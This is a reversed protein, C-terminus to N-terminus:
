RRNVQLTATTSHTKGGGTATITITYTGWGGSSRTKVTLTSSSGSTSSPNFTYTAGSPGASASFSVPNSFGAQRTLSIASSSSGGRSITAPSFAGASISFDSTITATQGSTASASDPVGDNNYDNTGTVVVDITSGVDSAQVAYSSSTAGAINTCTGAACHQWQYSYTPTPYGAWSGPNATLTSGVTASGAITPPNTNAPPAPTPPAPSAYGAPTGNGTPGDYGVVGECLYSGCTGNSGSTVDNFFGLNKYSFSGYAPSSASGARGGSLADVSAIIPSAVSTGGFVMWGSAGQYAYSDYVSVGTNPDAVASADAVTRKSCGSDSQWSPKAIYSSCGSGAGSWGTETWGRSASSSRNLTTGGVAEVYQSAAPFQVGYGNDGSSVTVDIGPHQYYASEYSAEGSFESGGYSNSIAVVGPRSAAYNVASGLNAYSTSSAEVLLIKCNPCIASAMDLDLSEEQAWGGDATPFSSGGNQDVKTFCGNATTCASLGFQSRYVGLDAEATPDDYADVIAITAGSGGGQPSGLNYASWLDSPAYGGGPGSGTYPRGRSDTVIQAHCRATRPAAPGPCVAKHYRGSAGPHPLAVASAPLALAAFILVLAIRIRKM